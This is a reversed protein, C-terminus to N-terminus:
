IPEPCGEMQLIFFGEVEVSCQVEPNAVETHCYNCRSQELGAPNEGISALWEKGRRLAVDPNTSSKVFVDFHITRGDVTNAYSDYVEIKM